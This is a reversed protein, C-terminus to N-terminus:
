TDCSAEMGTASHKLGVLYSGDNTIKSSCSLMTLMIIIIIVIMMILIIDSGDGNPALRWGGGKKLIKIMAMSIIM